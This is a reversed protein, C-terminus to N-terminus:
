DGEQAPAPPRALEPRLNKANTAWAHELKVLATLALLSVVTAVTYAEFVNANTVFLALSGTACGAVWLLLVAERHTWGLKVIRHSIHDKGATFPSIGRRLRSLTVLTTDLLPVALVLLPIMWTVLTVNSPFRLKIGVVALLFGLFLSGGDGMFVSAPNFNYFLFGLTAGLLAAALAGVLYQGSQIALLLFYGAAIASVGGCLGDMNDLYNVGNTVFLLWVLTVLGDLWVNAFLHVRVGSAIVLSTVVAQALLKPGPRLAQRDDWIGLFSLLTAGVLIGILQTVYFRDGFAIVALIVAAYIALGGLLPIPTHHVKRASPKDVIGVRRAITRAVPTGGLAFALAAAFILMLNLM